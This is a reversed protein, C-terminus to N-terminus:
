IHMRAHDARSLTNYICICGDIYLTIYRLGVIKCAHELGVHVWNYMILSSIAMAGAPDFWWLEKHFHAVISSIISFTNILVDNWNDEAGHCCVCVWM